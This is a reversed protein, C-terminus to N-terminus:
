FHMNVCWCEGQFTLSSFVYLFSNVLTLGEYTAAKGVFQADEYPSFRGIIYFLVSVAIFMLLIVVWLGVTFPMLLMAIPENESQGDPVQVVVSHIVMFAFNSRINLLIQLFEAFLLHQSVSNLHLSHKDTTFSSIYFSFMQVSTFYM